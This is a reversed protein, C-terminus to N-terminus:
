TVTVRDIRRETRRDRRDVAAAAAPPNAALRRRRCGIDILAPACHQLRRCEAAFALSGETSLGRLLSSSVAKKNCKVAVFSITSQGVIPVHYRPWHGVSTTWQLQVIVDREAEVQATVDGTVHHGVVAMDAHLSRLRLVSTGNVLPSSSSINVAASSMQVRMM